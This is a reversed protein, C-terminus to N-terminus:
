QLRREERMNRRRNEMMREQRLNFDEEPTLPRRRIRAPRERDRQERGKRMARTYGAGKMRTRAWWARRADRNPVWGQQEEQAEELEETTLSRWVGKIADKVIGIKM